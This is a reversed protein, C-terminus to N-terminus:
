RLTADFRQRLVDRLESVASEVEADTLTKRTDQLLVSFALSKKGKELDKGRYVDFLRVDSVIPSAHRRLEDIVAQHSVNEDFLAAVDRRVPPVKPVERFAPVAVRAVGDFDLEFLVVPVPLDYKQQWSPHLEGVWGVGRGGIVIRASKGPHLAPHAAAEFRAQNTAVLAEVSAKADYFDVRRGREAWQEPWLDGCAAGGIRVPQVYDEGSRAFCRGIEFVRVRPQKHRLNFAVADVLGPFLSSRMVSMQSAIPNALAIPTPNGCFDTEWLRDIFSYTVIEHYGLDVLTRRLEARTRASEPAPLMALPATPVAAPITDYGRIRAIEEILDEEIAIDFRYSPPTAAVRNDLARTTFGLRDLITQVERPKMEIGLIRQARDVRLEVPKREPLAAKAESIPGATGGCIELVLQTARDLARTTAAFDVGREFRFSSDSGFGLARSKGAIVDPTFFASELLVDRTTDGVATEAGGMIGALAVAKEDDAIVLYDPALTRTEGNLLELKEGARAFRAHIAGVLKAADFAHLPQGLELMVYNTIDVIASIPRLGSRELRRQMWEPASANADVGRVLRCCYRPCAQPADLSVSITDPIANEIAVMRQPKQATGTIASVERALGAMSLCDGRNPTPKTTLVQDHLELVDSVNAGVTAAAPLAMLGSAESSLGLEKESCLMGRSEVGRVKAAKIDIGPLRAGVLATPVKMGARVNPAGCVITLPAVGVNVRCVSLRDADPHKEVSLVEGVVVQELSPGASEISEVEIGAFTLAHALERTGLAPDVVTRLWNESFKM